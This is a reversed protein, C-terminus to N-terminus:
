LCWLACRYVCVDACVCVRPLCSPRTPHSPETVSPCLLLCVQFLCHLLEEFRSRLRCPCHSGDAPLKPLLEGKVYQKSRLRRGNRYHTRTHAYHSPGVRSPLCAPLCISLCAPLCAPLSACPVPRLRKPINRSYPSHHSTTERIIDMLGRIRSLSVSM